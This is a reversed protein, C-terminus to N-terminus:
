CYLSQRWKPVGEYSFHPKLKECVEAWSPKVTAVVAPLARKALATGPARPPAVAPAAAGSSATALRPAAKELSPRSGHWGFLGRFGEDKLQIDGRLTFADGSRDFLAMVILRGGWPKNALEDQWWKCEEAREKRLAERVKQRGAESWLRLLKLEVSLMGSPHRPSPMGGLGDAVIECVLDRAGRKRGNAKVDVIAAAMELGLTHLKVRLAKAVSLGLTRDAQHCAARREGLQDLTVAVDPPLDADALGSLGLGTTRFAKLAEEAAFGAMTM